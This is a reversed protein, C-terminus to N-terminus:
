SKEKEKREMYAFVVEAQRVQVHTVPKGDHIGGRMRANFRGGDWLQISQLEQAQIELTTTTGDIMAWIELRDM